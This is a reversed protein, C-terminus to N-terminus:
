DDTTPLGSGELPVSIGGGTSASIDSCSSLTLEPTTYAVCDTSLSSYGYPLITVKPIYKGYPVTTAINCTFTKADATSVAISDCPIAAFTLFLTTVDYASDMTFQLDGTTPDYTFSQLQPTM